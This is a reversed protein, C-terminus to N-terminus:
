INEYSFYKIVSILYKGWCEGVFINMFICINNELYIYMIYFTGKYMILFLIM